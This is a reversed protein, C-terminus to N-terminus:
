TKKMVTVFGPSSPSRKFSGFQPKHRAPAEVTRVLPTRGGGRLNPASGPRIRTGNAARCEVQSVTHAIEAETEKFNLGHAKQMIRDECFLRCGQLSPKGRALAHHMSLVARDKRPLIPSSAFDADFTMQHHLVLALTDLDTEDYFAECDPFVDPRPLQITFDDVHTVRRAVCDKVFAKDVMAAGHNRIHDSHLVARPSQHGWNYPLVDAAPVIMDDFSQVKNVSPLAIEYAGPESSMGPLAEVTEHGQAKSFDWEPYRACRTKLDGKALVKYPVPAKPEHMLCPLRRESPGGLRLEPRVTALSMLGDASQCPRTRDEEEEEAEASTLFTKQQGAGTLKGSKMENIELQARVMGELSPSDKHRNRTRPQSPASFAPLSASSQLSSWRVPYHGPDFTLQNQDLASRYRPPTGM